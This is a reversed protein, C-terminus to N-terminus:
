SLTISFKRKSVSQELMFDTAKEVTHFRGEDKKHHDLSYSEIEIQNIDESTNTVALVDLMRMVRSHTLMM